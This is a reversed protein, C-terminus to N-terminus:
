EAIVVRIGRTRLSDLINPRVGADTVVVSVEEIGFVFGPAVVGFKTSEALVVVDRAMQRLTRDAQSEALHDNMLGRQVDIAPSGLYLTDAALERAALEALHGLMSHMGPRVSGGLVILEIGTQDMLVAAVDLSNTIVTLNRRPPLHRAFEYTTTGSSIAITQGDRVLGAAATAISLKEPSSGDITSALQIASPLVAGGYDRVVRGEKVLRRLDRRVTAPGVALSESLEAISARGRHGLLELM